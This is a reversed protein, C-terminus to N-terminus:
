PAAAEAPRDLRPVSYDALIANIETRHRELAAGVERRLPEDERRVAMAIDFVMPGKPGDLAPRVPDVRLRPTARAAFYGAMPGWALALDVEGRAVAEVIRAPPNAQAYDGTLLYGRVTDTLGRRALAQAPPTSAADLGALQVGVTLRALSPDDLSAITPGNPRSVVVYTSRYYPRTPRLLEIGVPLGAVLDCRGALITHRLFGRRQAWWTYSVTAGLDRAVIAVIRNEFGEGASNSFPLNNPDACVRLERASAPLATACALALALAM